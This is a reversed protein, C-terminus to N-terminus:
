RTGFPSVTARRYAAGSAVFSDAKAAAEALIVDLEARNTRAEREVSVLLAAVFSVVSVILFFVIAAFM